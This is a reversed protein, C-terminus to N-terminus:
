PQQPLAPGRLTLAAGRLTLAATHPSHGAPHPSHGAPHPSSHSPQAGCPSPQQTLASRKIQGDSCALQVHFSGPSSVHTVRVRLDKLSPPLVLRPQLERAEDGAREPSESEGEGLLAEFPPDWVVADGM